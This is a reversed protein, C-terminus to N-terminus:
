GAGKNSVSSTCGRTPSAGRWAAGSAGAGIILVDVPSNMGTKEEVPAAHRSRSKLAIRRLEIRAPLSPKASPGSSEARLVQDIREGVWPYSRACIRVGQHRKVHHLSSGPFHGNGGCTALDTPWGRGGRPTFCSRATLISARIKGVQFEAKQAKMSEDDVNRNVFVEERTPIGEFHQDAFIALADGAYELCSRTM